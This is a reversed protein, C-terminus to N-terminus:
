ILYHVEAAGPLHRQDVIRRADLGAVALQREAIVAGRRVDHRARPGIAHPVRQPEDARAPGGAHVRM